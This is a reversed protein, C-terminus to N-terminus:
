MMDLEEGRGVVDGECRVLLLRSRGLVGPARANRTCECSVTAFLIGGSTSLLARALCLLRRVLYTKDISQAYNLEIMNVHNAVREHDTRMPVLMTKRRSLGVM